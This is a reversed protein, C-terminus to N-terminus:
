FGGGTRFGGGGGLGGGGLGGGWGGGLGGGGGPFRWSGSRRGLGRHGFPSNSGRPRYQQERLITEWLEGSDALGQLFQNLMLALASGNGFGSSIDDYRNNKFNRRVKELDALRALHRDHSRKFEHLRQQLEKLRQEATPLESVLLDDEVTATLRAYRYLTEMNEKQLSAALTDVASRFNPDEGSAYGAKQQMLQMLREELQKIEEDIADLVQQKQEYATRLAAVGDEEAASEERKRLAAFEKDAAARKLDAHDKLRLPIELLRAYNPRADHYGCLRAVWKDLFRVLPNASYAATAYKREWLYSFLPDNEYPKGKEERNQQAEQMKEEAQRAIRDASDASALQAKYADDLQLRQRTREEQDDLAQAATAVQDSQQERQQEKHLQEGRLEEIQAALRTLEESRLQLLERVRQDASDLGAVVEGSVIHDLRIRALDRYRQAQRQQQSILSDSAEQIQRDSEEVQHHLQELTQNINQLANRGSLM